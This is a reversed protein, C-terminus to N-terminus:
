SKGRLLSEPHRSLYDTLNKTSYAAGTIQKLSQNFYAVVTPVNRDITNALISFSSAMDQASNITDKVEKSKILTSLENLMTEAAKLAQNFTMPKEAVEITPFIPYHHYISAKAKPHEKDKILEIDAIGTLLNPKTINARLGAQMLQMIPNQKKGFGKEVFFEVYVPIQVKNTKPNSTIEIRTVQGIKVGRYTVPSTVSLGKLSGNFFMAYTESKSHLYEQYLFIAGVVVLSIAGLVFMGLLTYFREQRM